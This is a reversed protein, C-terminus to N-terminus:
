SSSQELVLGVALEPALTDARAHVDEAAHVQDLIEILIGLREDGLHM